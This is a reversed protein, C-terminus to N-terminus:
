TLTSSFDEIAEVQGDFFPRTWARHARVTEPLDVRALTIM